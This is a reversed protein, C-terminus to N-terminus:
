NLKKLIKSQVRFEDIKIYFGYKFLNLTIQPCSYYPQEITMPSLHRSLLALKWAQDFCQTNALNAMNLALKANENAKWSIDNVMPWIM